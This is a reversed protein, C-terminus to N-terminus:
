IWDAVDAVQVLAKKLGEHELGLSEAVEQGYWSLLSLLRCFSFM